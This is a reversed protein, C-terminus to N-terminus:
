SGDKGLIINTDDITFVASSGSYLRYSTNTQGNFFEAVPNNSNSSSIVLAKNVTDILFSNVGPLNYDVLEVDGIKVMNYHNSPLNSQSVILGSGTIPLAGGFDAGVDHTGMFMSGSAGADVSFVNTSGTVHLGGTVSVATNELGNNITASKFTLDDSSSGFQMTTGSASITLGMDSTFSSTLGLEFTATGETGNIAFSGSVDEQVIEDAYKGVYLFAKVKSPILNNNNENPDQLFLIGAYPDFYWDTTSDATIENGGVSEIFPKYPNGALINSVFEPVVQLKGRSGSLFYGDSFFGTGLTQATSASTFYDTSIGQVQTEYNAPLKLAYAHYWNGTVDVEGIDGIEGADTDSTNVYQSDGIAEVEFEVYQVSGPGGDSASQIIWLDQTPNNPIPDAFITSNLTQVTSSYLEENVTLRGSVQAKGSLRKIAIQTLITNKPSFEAM